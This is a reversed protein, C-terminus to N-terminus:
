WWPVSAGGFDPMTVGGTDARRAEHLAVGRKIRLGGEYEISVKIM